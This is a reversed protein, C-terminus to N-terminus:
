ASKEIHHTITRVVRAPTLPDRMTEYTLILSEGLHYGAMEYDILKAMNDSVYDSDDMKGFHEWLYVKRSKMALVMFDPHVTYKEGTVHNTLEVPYEYRYPIGRYYLEDAIFVESKSRVKEGRKTEFVQAGEKIKKKAYQKKQWQNAYESDTMRIPTILQQRAKPMEGYIDEPVGADYYALTKQLVEYEKEARALVKEDYTKQAVSRALKMDDANGVQLYKQSAVRGKEKIVHDCYDKNGKHKIRLYGPPATELAVEKRRILKEIYIERERLRDVAAQM